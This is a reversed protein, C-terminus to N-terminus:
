IHPSRTKHIKQSFKVHKMVSKAVPFIQSNKLEGDKYLDDRKSLRGSVVRWDEYNERFNDFDNFAKRIENLIEVPRKKIIENIEYKKSNEFAKKNFYVEISHLAISDFSMDDAKIIDSFFNLKERHKEGFIRQDMKNMWRLIGGGM